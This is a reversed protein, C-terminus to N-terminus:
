KLVDIGPLSGLELYELVAGGGTSLHEFKEALQSAHIASVTDGGGVVKFCDDREALARALAFTGEHYPAKEFWGLPGNWFLTKAPKLFKIFADRSEPGIDFSEVFDTPLCIPIDKRRASALINKAADVDDISPQRAGAPLAVAKAKLFAYAMAGGIAIGKVHGLLAEITKIKDSVKSGGLLAFVPEDPHELLKSMARVEKEILFGMGRTATIKPVGYTSAHKRHATGFADTVYIQALRALQNAFQADNKEEEKHYRLNELLLIEGPALKRAMLEIGEGVCDDALTIEVELLEALRHAVPELSFAEDRSGDAKLAPRGLHSALIVKARRELAHRITPLAERIRTDDSIKGDEVPVNFDVRMFVAQNEIPLEAISKLKKNQGARPASRSPEAEPEAVEPQQSKPGIPGNPGIPIIPSPRKQIAM